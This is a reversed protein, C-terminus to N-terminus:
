AALVVDPKLLGDEVDAIGILESAAFVAVPSPAAGTKLKQGQAFRRADEAHLEVRPLHAVAERMPRWRAAIMEPLDPGPAIAAAVDWPGIRIRRLELLHAPVGAERGVDRAISRIYTGSSCDVTIRYDTPREPVPTVLLREIAVAVPKLEPTEGGRAIRYARRGGIKKASIAPPVQTPRSKVIEAARRVDDAALKWGDAALTTEGTADDTTTERGFRIVGEYSKRLAAAFRALRTARGVLVVLLGSAPPDLTGAHGVRGEGIARRVQHVIDHSTPGPPKDILLICDTM